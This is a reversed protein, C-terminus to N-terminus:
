GQMPTPRAIQPATEATITGEAEVRGVEMGARRWDGFRRCLLALVMATASSVPHSWWIADAGMTSRFATVFGIRVGILSIILISRSPARSPRIYRLEEGRLRLPKDTRYLFVVIAILATTQAILTATASGAIGMVPFPGLGLILLPNVAVDLVVWVGMFYLPTKAHGAGRQARM